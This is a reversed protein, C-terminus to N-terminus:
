EEVKLLPEIEGDSTFLGALFRAKCHHGLFARLAPPGLSRYIVLTDNRGWTVRSAFVSDPSCPRSNESVTLTRWTVAQKNRKPEWSVILSRWVRKGAGAAKQNLVIESGEVGFSGRETPYPLHPLGIPYIRASARHLDSTLALGRSEPISNATVGEALAIRMQGPDDPGDWQEGLLALRRGRFLLATRVVRAKGARFSWEAMDASSQSVWLAPRSRTAAHESGTAWTPGLWSRGLGFLEFRSTMGPTRHDVAILDGDRAWNARLISLSRDPRSDAPLPPPAHRGPSKRPFWWDLVTSFGPEALRDAWHRFLGRCGESAAAVGFVSSGNPRSFRLAARFWGEALADVQDPWGEPREARAENIASLGEVWENLPLRRPVGDGDLNQQLWRILPREKGQAVWTGLASNLTVLDASVDPPGESM